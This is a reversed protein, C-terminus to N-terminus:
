KEDGLSALLDKMRPVLDPKAGYRSPGKEVMEVPTSGDCPHPVCLAQPYAELLLLIKEDDIRSHNCVYHLPLWGKEDSKSAAEPYKELLLAFSRDPHYQRQAAKHLPYEGTETPVKVADPYGELIAVLQDDNSRTFTELVKHLPLAGHQDGLKLASPNLNILRKSITL